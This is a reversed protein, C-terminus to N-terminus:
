GEAERELGVQRLRQELFRREAANGALAM